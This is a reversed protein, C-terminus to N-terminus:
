GAVLQLAAFLAVICNHVMARYNTLLCAQLYFAGAGPRVSLRSKTILVRYKSGPYKADPGGGQRSLSNIMGNKAM